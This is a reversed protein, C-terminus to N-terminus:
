TSNASLSPTLVAMAKSSESKLPLCILTGRGEKRGKKKGEKKGEKM